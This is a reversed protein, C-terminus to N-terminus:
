EFTYEFTEIDKAYVSSVLDVLDPTYWDRYSVKEATKNEFGINIQKSTSECIFEQVAKIDELKGVHSVIINGNEDSIFPLQPKFVFDVNQLNQHVLWENLFSEFNRFEPIQYQEPKQVGAFLSGTGKGAKIFRYASVCRSWPNRTIAFSPLSTFTKPAYRSIELATTHGMFRGYLSMNISVGAAKPIHIFIIGSRIWHKKRRFVLLSQKIEQPLYNQFKSIKHILDM